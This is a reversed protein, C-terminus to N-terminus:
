RASRACANPARPGMSTIGFPTASANKAAGIECSSRLANREEQSIPAAFFAEAVGNPIVEIPGRAGFAQAREALYGSIAQIASAHTFIKQYWPKWFWTRLAWFAESDGSQMTLLYPIDNFKQHFLSAAM